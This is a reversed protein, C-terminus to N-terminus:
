LGVSAAGAVLVVAVRAQLEFALILVNPEGSKKFDEWPRTTSSGAHSPQTVSSKLNKEDPIVWDNTGHSAQTVRPQILRYGPPPQPAGAAPPDFQDFVNARRGKLYNTFGQNFSNTLLYGPPPTPDAM